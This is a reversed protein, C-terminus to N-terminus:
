VEATVEKCCWIMEGDSCIYPIHIATCGQNVMAVATDLFPNSTSTRYVDYLKCWASGPPQVIRTNGPSDCVPIISTGFIEPPCIEPLPSFAKLPPRKNLFEVFNFPDDKNSPNSPQAQGVPPTKCSTDDRRAKGFLQANDNNSAGCAIDNALFLDSDAETTPDLGINGGLLSNEYPDPVQDSEANDDLFINSDLGIMQDPPDMGELSPEIALLAPDLIVGAFPDGDRNRLFSLGRQSNAIAILVLILFQM